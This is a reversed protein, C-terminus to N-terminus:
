VNLLCSNIVTDLVGLFLVVKGLFVMLFLPSHSKGFLMYM